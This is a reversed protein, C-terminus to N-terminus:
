SMDVVLMAVRAVAVDISASDITLLIPTAATYYFPTVNSTTAVANLNKNTFFRTALAADGLDVTAVAGEATLVEIASALVLTHAPVTYLVLTDTAALAAAGAATRAAAITAFNLDVEIKSYGAFQYAPISAATGKNFGLSDTYAVM